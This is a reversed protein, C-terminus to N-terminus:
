IGNEGRLANRSARDVITFLRDINDKMSNKKHGSVKKIEINLEDTLRYFDKYLEWNAIRRNQKSYFDSKELRERRGSLGLINQSDTYLIIKRDIEGVEFLAWLITQIELKTSSSNEFRKLKVKSKLDDSFLENENVIFYAGYGIESKTNVSGDTFLLLDNYKSM